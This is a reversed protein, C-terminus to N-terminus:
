GALLAVFPAVDLLDVSGDSNVDAKFSFEGSTIQDIFPAVDLLNVEGDCNVDGVIGKPLEGQLVVPGALNMISTMGFVEFEFDLDVFAEITLTSGDVTLQADVINFVVPKVTSLDVTEDPGVLLDIFAMGSIGFVNGLQDFQNGADVTGPRGVETFFVMAGDPEVIVDVLGTDLLFGDALSLDLECVKATGFPEQAPSLEIAGTGTISSTDSTGLASATAMSQSQVVVLDIAQGLLLNTDLVFLCATGLCVSRLLASRLM